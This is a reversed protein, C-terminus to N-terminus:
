RAADRGAFLAPGKVVYGPYTRWVIVFNATRIADVGFM